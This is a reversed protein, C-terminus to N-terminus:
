KKKVLNHYSKSKESCQPNFQTGGFGYTPAKVGLAIKNPSLAKLLNCSIRFIPGLGMLNTAKYFSGEWWSGFRGEDKVEEVELFM